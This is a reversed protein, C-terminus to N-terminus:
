KIIYNPIFYLNKLKKCKFSCPKKIVLINRLTNLQFLSCLCHKSVKTEIFYYVIMIM